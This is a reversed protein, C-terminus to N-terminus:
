GHQLDGAIHLATFAYQLDELVVLHDVYANLCVVRRGDTTWGAPEILGFDNDLPRWGRLELQRLADVRDATQLSLGSGWPLVDTGSLPEVFLGTGTVPELYAVHAAFEVVTLSVDDIRGLGDAGLAAGPDPVSLNRRYYQTLAPLPIRCTSPSHVSAAM